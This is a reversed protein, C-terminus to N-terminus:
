RIAYSVRVTVELTLQGSAIPVAAMAEETEAREMAVVPGGGFTEVQVVDGLEVGAAAAITEARTRADEVALELAQKNASEKGTADFQIGYITNAGSSIVENLVSGVRDIERLTVRVTNTVVFTPAPMEEATMEAEPLPQQNQNQQRVNFNETQIDEAAIGSDELTSIVAQTRQNNETVAQQVDTSSTEVGITIRVINPELNVQGAGEVTITSGREGSPAPQVAPVAQCAGLLLAAAFILPLAKKTFM